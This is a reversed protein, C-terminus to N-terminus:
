KFVTLADNQKQNMYCLKIYDASVAARCVRVEDIRGSFDFNTKGNGHTGIFTNQGVGSYDITENKGAASRVMTGDIYLAQNHNTQDVTFTVLHWGTKKLFQGSSINYFVSDSSPNSLHISGITGLSGLYYDERILAADGLSLIESGGNPPSTDLQAWASLTISSPSGLLGSVKISDAGNFKKSYGIIGATDLASCAIANNKNLTADNSNKGLHWVASYGNATDFVSAGNSKDRANQNGWLMVIFQSSNNGYITDVLVWIEALGKASDWREIEYPLMRNSPSLFRVDEGNQRAQNFFFNGGETLRVLVPFRYVDGAINAGAPTTNLTLQRSFNWGISPAVTTAGHIATINDLTLPSLSTDNCIFRFRFTGAPLDNLSYAGTSDVAV